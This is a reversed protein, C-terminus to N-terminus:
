IKNENEEQPVSKIKLWESQDKMPNFLAWVTNDDCLVILIDNAEESAVSIQIINRM